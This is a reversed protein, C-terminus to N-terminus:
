RLPVKCIPCTRIRRMSPLTRRCAPCAHNKRSLWEGVLFAPVLLPLIWLRSLHLSALGDGLQETAGAFAFYLVILGFQRVQMWTFRRKVRAVEIPQLLEAVGRAPELQVEAALKAVAAPRAREREM